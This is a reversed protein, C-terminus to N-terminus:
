EYSEIVEFLAELNVHEQIKLSRLSGQQIYHPEVGIISISQNIMELIATSLGGHVVDQEYVYIPLGVQMLEFLLNEDIPSFFRANVVILDIENVTANHIVHDVNAGYTIVIAKPQNGVQFQTWSGISIKEFASIAKYPTSERPYRICIPGQYDIASMLMNQAEQSDKPQMLVLNPVNRLTAIDYIGQQWSECEGVLGCQDIGIIINLQSDGIENLISDYAKAIERSTLAVFPHFGSTALTVAMTLVHGVQNPASIYRDPFVDKYKPMHHTTCVVFSEDNKSLSILSDCLIDKWYKQTSPIQRLMQGTQIDFPCVNRYIYETDQEAYSYGKGYQAHIHILTPRDHMKAAYMAQILADINHGDIPGIYNLNLEDFINSELVNDKITEKVSNMTSLIGKGFRNERLNHKMSGKFNQYTKHLRISNLNFKKKTNTYDIYLVIVKKNQAGIQQLAEFSQGNMLSDHDILTIIEYDEHSLERAQVFGLAASLSTSTQTGDFCDYVSEARKTSDTLGNRKRLTAFRYGRGTLIKHAYTLRGTDFLFKDKPCEYVYHMAITTEIASLNDALYGGTKSCSEILFTRITQACDQLEDKTYHKVQECSEM